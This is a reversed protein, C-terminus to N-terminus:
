LQVKASVAQVRVSSKKGVWENNTNCQSSVAVPVAFVFSCLTIGHMSSKALIEIWFLVLGALPWVGIVSDSAGYILSTNKWFSRSTKIFWFSWRSRKAENQIVSNCSLCLLVSFLSQLSRKKRKKFWGQQSLTLFDMGSVDVLILSFSVCVCFCRSVTCFVRSSCKKNCAYKHAYPVCITGVSQKYRERERQWMCVCLFVVVISKNRVAKTLSLLFCCPWTMKADELAMYLYRPEVAVKAFICKHEWM